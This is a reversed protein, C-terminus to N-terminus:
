KKITEVSHVPDNWRIKKSSGNSSNVRKSFIPTEVVVGTNPTPTNEGLVGTIPTPTNEGVVGLKKNRVVGKIPTNKKVVEAYTPKRLISM